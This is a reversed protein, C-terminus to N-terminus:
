MKANKVIKSVKKIMEKDYFFYGNKGNEKVFYMATDAKKMLESIDNADKPYIAIGISITVFFIYSEIKIPESLSKMIKEIIYGIDKNSKINKIVLVFEDGGNRAVFDEERLVNKIRKAVNKLVYDGIHHGFNDNIEKFKDLDIFFLAFQTQYRKASVISNKLYAELQVRNALGTLIDYNAYYYLKQADKITTLDSFIAIYYKENYHSNVVKAMSLWEPYIEGSKRKNWIEGRWKGNKDLSSWINEFFVRDHIGSNLISSKKGIVENKEYGTIKSFASNVSLIYGDLDTIMIGENSNEFFVASQELQIEREKQLTVDNCIHIIFENDISYFGAEYWFKDEHRQVMFINKNKLNEVINNFGVNCQSIQNFHLTDIDRLHLKNASFYNDNAYFLIGNKDFIGIRAPHLEIVKVLIDIKKALSDKTLKIKSM